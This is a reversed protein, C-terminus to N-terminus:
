GSPEDASDGLTTLLFAPITISRQPPLALSPLTRTSIYWPRPQLSKTSNEASARTCGLSALAVLWQSGGLRPQALSNRWMMEPLHSM